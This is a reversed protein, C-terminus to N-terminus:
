VPTMRHSSDSHHNNPNLPKLLFMDAHNQGPFDRSLTYNSTERSMGAAYTFYTRESHSPSNERSHERDHSRSRSRRRRSNRIVHSAGGGVHNETPQVSDNIARLRERKKRNESKYRFIFLYVSLVGSLEMIAFSTAVMTFSSGYRYTFVPKEGIGPPRVHAAESAIAGIYFILGILTSLGALVFLVGAVFSLYLKKDYCHSAFCVIGGTMQLLLSILPMMTSTKINYLIAETRQSDDKEELSFYKIYSCNLKVKMCEQSYCKKWLGAHTSKTVETQNCGTVIETMYIWYDTAVGMSLFAFATSACLSTLVMLFRKRGCWAM